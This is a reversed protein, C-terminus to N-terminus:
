SKWRTSDMRALCNQRNRTWTDNRYVIIRVPFISGSSIGISIWYRISKYRESAWPWFGMLAIISIFLQSFYKTSKSISKISILSRIRISIWSSSFGVNRISKTASLGVLEIIEQELTVKIETSIWCLKVYINCFDVICHGIESSCGLVPKTIFYQFM